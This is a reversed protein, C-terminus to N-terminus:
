AVVAKLQVAKKQRGTELIEDLLLAMKQKTIGPLRQSYEDREEDTWVPSKLAKSFLHQQGETPAEGTEEVSAQVPLVEGSVEEVVSQGGIEGPAYTGATADFGVDKLGQTIARSRLMAKPYKKWTDNILGARKADEMSFSSTHPATLWPASLKVAARSDSLEEWQSKGGARHFLGLQLDASVEIKGQIITLGRLAAVPSLGLDRGALIVFLVAEPTKLAAPCLGSKLLYQAGLMEQDWAVPAAPNIERIAVATM